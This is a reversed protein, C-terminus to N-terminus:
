LQKAPVVREADEHGYGGGCYQCAEIYSINTLDILQTRLEDISLKDDFINIFDSQKKPVEGLEMGRYSRRCLHLQGCQVVTFQMKCMGCTSFRGILEEESLGRNSWNGFDIWGKCHMDEGYYKKVEYPIENERLIDTLEYYKGSLDGYWSIFMQIKDRYKKMVDIVDQKPLITANSFIMLKDFRDSYEMAKEIMPAFEKHMFPEGGSYQLWEVYDVLEFYRDVTKAITEYSFHPPVEYYPSDASCDKCKLTCRLTVTITTRRLRVEKNM